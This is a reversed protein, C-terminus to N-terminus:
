FSLTRTTNLHCRWFIKSYMQFHLSCYVDWQTLFISKEKNFISMKYMSQMSRINFSVKLHLCCCNLRGILLLRTFICCETLYLNFIVYIFAFSYNFVTKHLWWNIIVLIFSWSELCSFFLRLGILVINQLLYELLLQDFWPHFVRFQSYHCALYRISGCILTTYYLSTHLISQSFIGFFLSSVAFTM